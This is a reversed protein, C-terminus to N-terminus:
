KASKIYEMIEEISFNDISAIPEFIRTTDGNIDFTDHYFGIMLVGKEDRTAVFANNNLLEFFMAM